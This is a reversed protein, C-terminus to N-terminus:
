RESFDMNKQKIVESLKSLTKPGATGDIPTVGYNEQFVSISQALEEDIVGKYFGIKQLMKKLDAVDM